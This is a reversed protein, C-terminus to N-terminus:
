FFPDLIFVRFVILTIDSQAKYYHCLATQIPHFTM